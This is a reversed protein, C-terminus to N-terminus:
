SNLITKVERLSNFYKIPEVQTEHQFFSNIKKELETTNQFVFYCRKDRPKRELSQIKFNSYILFACLAMDSTKYYNEYM